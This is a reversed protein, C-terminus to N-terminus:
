RVPCFNCFLTRCLVCGKLISECWDAWMQMQTVQIPGRGAQAGESDECKWFPTECARWRSREILVQLIWWLHWACEQTGSNCFGLQWSKGKCKGFGSVRTLWSQRLIHNIHWSSLWVLPGKLIGGGSGPWLSSMSWKRNYLPGEQWITEYHEDDSDSSAILSATNKLAM